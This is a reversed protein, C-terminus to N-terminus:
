TKPQAGHLRGVGYGYAVLLLSMAGFRATQDDTLGEIGWMGWLAAIGAGCIQVIITKYM